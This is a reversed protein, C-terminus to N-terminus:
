FRFTTAGSACRRCTSRSVNLRYFLDERFSGKRVAERLHENTAAVVRVNVKV